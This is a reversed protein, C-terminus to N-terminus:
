KGQESMIEELKALKVMEADHNIDNIPSARLYERMNEVWERLREYRDYEEASLLHVPLTVWTSCTPDKLLEEIDNDNSLMNTQIEEMDFTDVDWGKKPHWACYGDPKRTSM